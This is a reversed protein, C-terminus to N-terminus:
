SKGGPTFVDPYFDLVAYPRFGLLAALRGTIKGELTRDYREALSNYGHCFDLLEEQLSLKQDTNRTVAAALDRVAATIEWGKRAKQYAADAGPSLEGCCAAWADLKPRAALIQREMYFRLRDLRNYFLIVAIVALSALAGLIILFDTM